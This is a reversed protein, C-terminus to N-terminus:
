FKDITCVYKQEATFADGKMHRDENSPKNLDESQMFNLIDQFVNLRTIRERDLTPVYEYDIMPKHGM